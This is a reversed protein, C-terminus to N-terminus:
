SKSMNYGSYIRSAKNSGELSKYKVLPCVAIILLTTLILVTVINYSNIGLIGKKM